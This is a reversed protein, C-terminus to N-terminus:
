GHFLRHHVWHLLREIDRMTARGLKGENAEAVSNAWDELGFPPHALLDHRFFMAVTPSPRALDRTLERRAQDLARPSLNPRKAAFGDLCARQAHVPLGSRFAAYALAGEDFRDAFLAATPEGCTACRDGEAHYGPTWADEDEGARDQGAALAAREEPTPEQPFSRAAELHEALLPHTVRIRALGDDDVDAGRYHLTGHDHDHDHEEAM